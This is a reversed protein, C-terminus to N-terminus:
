RERAAAVQRYADRFPVGGAVLELARETAYLEETLAAACAAEDVTLGEVVLTMARLCDLTVGMGHMVPGKSLQTDRNYGSMLGATLTRVKTEEGLVVHLNGRVLELVDPNRKQPMISSGTCLSAPLSVFGFERTSFLMLDVALRNLGQMVQSCAALILTEMRGRSLQAYMPNTQVRAFGLEAATRERDLDIVPVGFGAASGLPCQDVSELALEVYRRDDEAAAGFSGLWVGVTTPMAPQMHTYGPMPTAGKEQCVAGLAAVYGDLAALVAALKEKEWLRMATLVQDNRSRGTHIKKGADGCRATLFNEIATHGDEEGPAIVFEGRASLAEIEALGAELSTLEDATLVGIGHLMRAHVRSARCDHPILELDLSADSGALFAELWPDVAEKRTWLTSM